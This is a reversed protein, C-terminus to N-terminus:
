RLAPRAAQASEPHGCRLAHAREGINRCNGFRAQGAVVHIGPGAEKRGRACWCRYDLAQITLEGVAQAALLDLRMQFRGATLDCRAGRRLERVEHLFLPFAVALQHAIELELDISAPSTGLGIRRVAIVRPTRAPESMAPDAILSIMMSHRAAYNRQVRSKGPKRAALYVGAEM